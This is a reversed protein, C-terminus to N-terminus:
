PWAATGIEKCFGNTKAAPGWFGVPAQVCPVHRHGGDHGPPRERDGRSVQPDECGPKLLWGRRCASFMGIVTMMALRGNAIEECFKNTRAAPDGFGVAGARLSGAIIAM